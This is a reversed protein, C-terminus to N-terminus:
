HKGFIVASQGKVTIKGHMQIQEKERKTSTEDALLQYTGKPLTVTVAKKNANYAVFLQKYPEGKIPNDMTFAVFNKEKTDLFTCYRYADREMYRYVGFNKRIEYLGKYYEVLDGYSITREWDLQNLDASSSFSNEDGLKTRAFEEGAQMFVMGQCTFVIAAALKNIRVIEEDRKEYEPEERLTILLKDWLTFNDHASVYSIIQSPAKPKWEESGDCWAVVSHKIDEELDEKGNVFGPVEGYFVHGKIADRTSDCFIAVREHLHGVNDKIAPIADEKMLTPAAVWPEGYILITEGDPLQDLEERIENMIETHHLGMLDFRFGDVHYEKAWHLISQKMYQGFMSRESATDNSCDSGDCLTGDEWQRYYYHPVTRNLWSDPSYTHNLVTDLVVNIGAKHLAMVMEKFEKIRVAGDKPDTAYSGEPVNYNVPDYGWNFQTDEGLEDVSGYDYPPLLHVHTVGLQKLYDVGTAHIGDNEYTTGEETFALYKGRYAEKIGSKKDYSFDKIHVEYIFPCDMKERAGKDNEWGKPNTRSLDVIMSRMGNAGCAIAYPDATKKTQGDATVEYEYYVGDYDGSLVIFWVGQEGKELPLKKQYRKVNGKLYGKQDAKEEEKTGYAYLNLSVKTATPAWVKLTTKEKTYTMGLDYPKYTYEKEFQESEFYKKWDKPTRKM